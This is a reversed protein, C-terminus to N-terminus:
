DVAGSGGFVFGSPLFASPRHPGSEFRAAPPPVWVRRGFFADWSNVGTLQAAIQGAVQEADAQSLRGGSRRWYHGFRELARRVRSQDPHPTAGALLGEVLAGRASEALEPPFPSPLPEVDRDLTFGFYDVTRVVMLGERRRQREFVVVPKGRRASRRFEREQM